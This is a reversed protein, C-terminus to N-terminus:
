VALITTTDLQGYTASELQWVSGSASVPSTNITRTWGNASITDSFGEAFLDLSTSPATSPLGTVQVRSGVELAALDTLSVTAQKSWADVVLTATRPAPEAYITSRWQAIGALQTDDNVNITLSEDHTGYRSISAPNTSRVESAGTAPRIAHTDNILTEDNVVFSVDRGIDYATLTLAVTANYRQDRAALAPAGVATLYVPSLEADGCDNLADLTSKGSVPQVGMTSLGTGITTGTVDGFGCIRTFRDTTTEGAGGSIAAYANTMMATTPTMDAWIACHSVQGSYLSGSVGGITASAYTTLSAGASTGASAGDVYLTLTGGTDLSLGVQHFVGDCVGAASTVTTTVGSFVNTSVAKAKGAATTQIEIINGFLDTARLVGAAASVNTLILASMSFGSTTGFWPLTSTMHYGSTSSTPTLATVTGDDVPLQGAGFDVSGSAGVLTVALSYNTTGSAVEGITTAANDEVLPWLLNAGTVLHCETEWLSMTRRQMRALRDSATIQCNARKGSEWGPDFQDVLGTWLVTYAGAGPPKVSVRVPCRIRLPYYAGSSLGPTFRGDDNNLSLSLSGPQATSREDTRGRSSTIGDALRVYSTIDVWSPSTTSADGTPDFEVKINPIGPIATRTM